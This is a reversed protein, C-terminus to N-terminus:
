RRFDAGEEQSCQSCGALRQVLLAPALPGGVARRVRGRLRRGHRLLPRIRERQERFRGQVMPQIGARRSLSVLDHDVDISRHQRIRILGTLGDELPACVNGRFRRPAQRAVRAADHHPVIWVPPDHLDPRSSPRDRRRQPACEMVSVATAAERAAPEREALPMVDAMPRLPARSRERVERQEASSVMARDVLLAVLDISLGIARAPEPSGVAPGQELNRRRRRHRRIRGLRESGPVVRLPQVEVRPRRAWAPESLTQIHAPRDVDQM